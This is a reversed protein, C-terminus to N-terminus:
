KDLKAEIESYFKMYKAIRAVDKDTVGKLRRIDSNHRLDAKKAKMSDINAFVGEKYEEYTQGPVKTMGRIGAIVRESMGEDRLYKYTIDTDEIVDHGLAICQLEEDDSKLYHMVKLPHLIYPLGGKDYQGAHANTAIVLMKALMVGKKMEAKPEDTVEYCASESILAVGRRNKKHLVYGKKIASQLSDAEIFLDYFDNGTCGTEVCIRFKKM